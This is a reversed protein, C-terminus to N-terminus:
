KVGDPFHEPFSASLRAGACVAAQWASSLSIRGFLFSFKM